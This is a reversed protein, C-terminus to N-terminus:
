CGEGSIIIENKEIRIKLDLASELVKLVTYLDEDEFSTTLTCANLSDDELVIKKHYVSELTRVITNLSDNQFVIARTKWSKYNRETNPYKKVVALQKNFEAKEGKSAIVMKQKVEKDYLSVKGESVTVEIVNMKKYAKVNFSTGLVKVEAEDLQIIFPHEINKEVEFYAEGKLKMIRSEKGYSKKNYALKSGANLTVLSGDPLKFEKTEATKTTVYLYTKYKIGALTIGIGLVVAAAIRLIAKLFITKGNREAMHILQRNYKWENEININKEKGTNDLSNWIKKLDEFEKHNEESAHIWDNVLKQEESNVEGALYKALLSFDIHKSNKEM